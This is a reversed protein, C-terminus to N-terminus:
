IIVEVMADAEIWLAKIREVEAFDGKTEAEQILSDHHIKKLDGRRVHVAVHFLEENGTKTKDFYNEVLKVYDEKIQFAGWYPMIEIAEWVRQVEAAFDPGFDNAQRMYEKTIFQIGLPVSSQAKIVGMCAFKNKCSAKWMPLEKDFVQFFPVTHFVSYYLDLDKQFIDYFTGPCAHTKPWLIYLGYRHFSCFISMLVTTQLRNTLGWGSSLDLCIFKASEEGSQTGSELRGSGRFRADFRVNHDFCPPVVVASHKWLDLGKKSKWPSNKQQTELYKRIMKQSHLDFWTSWKQHVLYQAFAGRYAVARAGQGFQLMYTGNDPCSKMSFYPQAQMGKHDWSLNEDNVRQAHTGHWPTWCLATWIIDQATQEGSLMLGLFHAFQYISNQHIKVDSELIVILGDNGVKNLAYHLARTHSACIALGVPQDLFQDWHKEEACLKLEYDEVIRRSAPSGPSTDITKPNPLYSIDIGEAELAAWFESQRWKTDTLPHLDIIVVCVKKMLERTNWGSAILDKLATKFAASSM